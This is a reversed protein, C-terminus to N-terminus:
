GTQALALRADGVFDQLKRARPGPERALLREAGDLGLVTFNSGLFSGNGGHLILNVYLDSSCVDSSWDRRTIEYATKQKFFFFFCLIILDLMIKIFLFFIFWM